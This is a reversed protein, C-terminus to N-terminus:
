RKEGNRDTAPRKIGSQVREYGHDVDGKIIKVKDKIDEMRKKLYQQYNSHLPGIFDLFADYIIVEHGIKLLQRSIEAGIFGAGGCLFVKM